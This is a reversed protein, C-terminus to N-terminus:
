RLRYRSTRDSGSLHGATGSAPFANLPELGDVRALPAAQDSGGELRSRFHVCLRVRSAAIAANALLQRRCYARAPPSAAFTSPPSGLTVGVTVGPKFDLMPTGRDRPLILVHGSRRAAGHPLPLPDVPPPLDHQIQDNTASVDNCRLPNYVAVYPNGPLRN